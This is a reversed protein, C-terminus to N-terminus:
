KNAPPNNTAPNNTAPPPAPSTAPQVPFPGYTGGPRNTSAGYEVWFDKGNPAVLLWTRHGFSASRIRESLDIRHADKPPRTAATVKKAEIEAASLRRYANQVPGATQPPSKPAGGLQAVFVIIPLWM